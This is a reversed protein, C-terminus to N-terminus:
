TAIPELFPRQIYVQVTSTASAVTAANVSIANFLMAGATSGALVRGATASVAIKSIPSVKIATKKIVAVGAVQYWSYSTTATNATMSVAVPLGQKTTNTALTVVSTLPNFSVLAGVINSAVGPLYIFESGGTKSSATDIGRCTFGVQLTRVASADINLFDVVGQFTEVPKHAM